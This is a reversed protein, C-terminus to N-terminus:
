RRVGSYPSALTVTRATFYYYYTLIFVALDCTTIPAGFRWM